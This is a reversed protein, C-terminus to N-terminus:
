APLPSTMAPRWGPSDTASATPMRAGDCDSSSSSKTSSSAADIGSSVLDYLGEALGTPSTGLEVARQRVDETMAGIDAGGAISAVNAMAQELKAFQSVSVAIAGTVGAGFGALAQGVQAM